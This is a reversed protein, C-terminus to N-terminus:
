KYANEDGIHYGSDYEAKLKYYLEERQFYKALGVKYAPKHGRRELEVIIECDEYTGILYEQYNLSFGGHYDKLHCKACQLNCNRLDWRTSIHTRSIYHSVQLTDDCGCTICVKDRVRVIKRIIADLKNNITKLKSM